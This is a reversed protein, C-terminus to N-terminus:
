HKSKVTLNKFLYQILKGKLDPNTHTTVIQIMCQKLPIWLLSCYVEIGRNAPIKCYWGDLGCIDIKKLNHNDPLKLKTKIYDFTKYVLDKRASKTEFQQGKAYPNREIKILRIDLAGNKKIFRGLCALKEKKTFSVWKDPLKFKLDFYKDNYDATKWKVIKKFDNINKKLLALKKSYINGITNKGKKLINRATEFYRNIRYIKFLTLYIDKKLEMNLKSNVINNQKLAQKMYIPVLINLKKLQLAKGYFYNYYFDNPNKKLEPKLLKMVEDSKKEKILKWLIEPTLSNQYGYLSSFVLFTFSFFLFCVFLKKM